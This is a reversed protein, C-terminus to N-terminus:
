NNKPAKQQKGISRIYNNLKVGIDDVEKMFQNFLEGTIL